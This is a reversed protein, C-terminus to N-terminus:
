PGRHNQTDATALQARVQDAEPAGLSTYLTFAQQWHRRAQGPDGIAQHARALGHHARAQQYKVGTQTALSLASAHQVRAQGPQGTGLFVEGLGNLTDAEDHRDGTERALALAQRLHSAAQEHRGLRLYAEGLRALAIAEHNRDGIENLLALAQQLLGTAHQYAGQRLSVEGLTLLAASEMGRHGTTRALALAQRLRGSAQRYRGQRLDLLGLNGLVITEGVQDGNERHLDLAQRWWGSAQGNLGQDYSALGLNSLARAQGNRDGTKRFLALAQELHGTAQQYRSQYVAVLGLANLTVAEAATDGAQRAAIQARSHIIIAEPYHGGTELYRFLTAALRTAHSPWGHEAAHVTVAVLTGREADLWGRAGVPDTVPPVPTSPAPIRPRRHREAPYLADMAAAATHLYHDFLRTLAEHQQGEGDHAAALERAYARLLDHLGYRGPSAPQILHARALLGLTHSVQEATTGTLAAVAYTDFDTGPHLGLLRFTRATAADLHHYSWSFVARVATRPDAGADLLDLRKRQDALEAVLGALPTVSRAGALEAAVRLALPLRCCQRALAAVADPEADAREGILVRLLRVADDLPLLDLDLRHAGDRAVLGALADRSTVVVSCAPTGPLLPRVQEASRANDLVVLMRRGALISRYRVAREDEGAPIDPGPVGLARLFGALADTAPVPQGLDYGRLNVYLQGDSFRAAAQHAWHVALATKGVGATGGIASIVVAQPAQEGSRDLLRTLAELEASRGTFGPVTPPLERPTGRQPEAKAPRAPGTIALAPDASLIRQQLERLGPGPEVGLEEALVDRAHQYAALAEAQLGDSYLALMLLGHLRERLPHLGTLQRLETIVQAYRGLHLDADIRAELARLRLEALRPIERLTLAESDVDALPEGRFLSLAAQAKTAAADWSSDRAAARAADLHAQIRTIDLEGPNVRILYGPPQTVVRSGEDGMTKRLRMVHNQISVRASPPPDCGWLAEALEDLSVVRNAAVLL